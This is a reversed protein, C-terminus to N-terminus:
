NKVLKYDYKIGDSFIQLFYIGKELYQININFLNNNQKLVIKGHIDIVIIEKIEKEICNDINVLGSSPNPFIKFDNKNIFDTTSLSTCNILQPITSKTQFGTDYGLQNQTNNGWSYISNNTKIAVTHYAGSSAFQWNNETGIQNPIPNNYAGTGNGLQGLFNYGWSWITGNSKIAISFTQGACVTQWNTETGIQTPIIKNTTTGDGLQGYQNVGWAWLTGDNKVAIVHASGASVSQWNTDTGIQTPIIKDNTTGDGLQYSNNKGWGWLTGNTKIGITFNNGASNSQTISLWNNDTGIQTFVNKDVLTGDGLQGQANNGCAWLTGNNKIAFSQMYGADIHLWNTDSGVQQPTIHNTNSGDGLQGYLNGIGSSSNSWSWLSGDTKLALSHQGGASIKQWNASNNIQIPFYGAGEITGWSWLTGDNRIAVNHTSGATISQWCQANALTQLFVLILLITKNKM